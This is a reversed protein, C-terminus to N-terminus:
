GCIGAAIFKKSM